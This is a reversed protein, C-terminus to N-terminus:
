GPFPLPPKQRARMMTGEGSVKLAMRVRSPGGCCPTPPMVRSVRLSVSSEKCKKSSKRPSSSGLLPPLHSPPLVHSFTLSLVQRLFAWM